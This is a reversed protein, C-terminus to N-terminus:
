GRPGGSKVRDVAEVLDGLIVQGLLRAMRTRGSAPVRIRRAGTTELERWGAEVSRRRTDDDLTGDELLVFVPDLAAVSFRWGMVEAHNIEPFANPHAIQEANEELQTCWRRAVPFSGASAAYVAAPRGALLRAIAAPDREEPANGKEWTACERELEGISGELETEFSADLVKDLCLIVPLLMWGLAARPAYGPPVQFAEQRDGEDELLTGGAAILRLRAGRERAGRVMSIAEWTSGSYSVVVALDEPGLWSPVEPDSRTTTPVRLQPSLVARALRCATASGGMGGLYVGRPTPDFAGPWGHGRAQALANRIQAPTELAWRRMREMSSSGTV